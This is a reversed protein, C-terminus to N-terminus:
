RRGKRSAHHPSPRHRARPRSPAPLLAQDPDRRLGRMLAALTEVDDNVGKLLVTQSLMPIGADVLRACAARADATLERPHNAHLAM